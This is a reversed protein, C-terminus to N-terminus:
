AAGAAAVTPPMANGYVTDIRKVFARLSETRDHLLIIEQTLRPEDFHLYLSSIVRSLTSYVSILICVTRKTHSMNNYHCTDSEHLCLTSSHVLLHYAGRLLCASERGKCMEASLLHSLALNHLLICGILGHSDTNGPCTQDLSVDDLRIAFLPKPYHHYDVRVPASYDNSLEQIPHLLPRSTIPGVSLTSQMEVLIDRQITQYLLSVPVPMPVEADSRKDPKSQQHFSAQTVWVAGLFAKLALKSHGRQLLGVGQNNLEIGERCPPAHPDM